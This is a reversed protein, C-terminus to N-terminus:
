SGFLGFCALTPVDFRDDHSELRISRNTAGQPIRIVGARESGVVRHTIRTRLLSRGNNDLEWLVSRV